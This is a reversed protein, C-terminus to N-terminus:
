GATAYTNELLLPKGQAPVIKNHGGRKTVWTV